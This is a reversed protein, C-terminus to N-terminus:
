GAGGCLELLNRKEFTWDPRKTRLADEAIEILDVVARVNMLAVWFPTPGEPDPKTGVPYKGVEVSWHLNRLIEDTADSAPLGARKWLKVLDHTRLSKNLEGTATADVGQAVLLGKVLNELALGYLLWVAGKPKWLHDPNKNNEPFL